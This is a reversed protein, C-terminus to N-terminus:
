RRLVIKAEYTSIVAPAVSTRREYDEGRGSEAVCPQRPLRQARMVRVHLGDKEQRWTSTPKMEPHYEVTQDNQGLVSVETTATARVSHLTFEKWTAAPWPNTSALIAYLAQGDKKKTFWIDGENTIVWPRVGYIADANVFMWLAIERLREEEEIPCNAMRSPGWM